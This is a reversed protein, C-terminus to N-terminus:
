SGAMEALDDSRVKGFADVGKLSSFVGKAMAGYGLVSNSWTFFSLSNPGPFVVASDQPPRTSLSLFSNPPQSSLAPEPVTAQKFELRPRTWAVHGAVLEGGGILAHYLYRM